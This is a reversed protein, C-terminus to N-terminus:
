GVSPRDAMSLLMASRATFGNAMPYLFRQIKKPLSPPPLRRATKDLKVAVQRCHPILRQTQILLVRVQRGAV